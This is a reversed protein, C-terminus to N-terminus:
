VVAAPLEAVLDGGQAPVQDAWRACVLGLCRGPERHEALADLRDEPGAFVEEAEFAVARAGEVVEACPDFLSEEREGGADVEVVAELAGAARDGVVGSLLVTSDSM